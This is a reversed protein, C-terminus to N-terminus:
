ADAGEHGAQQEIMQQLAKWGALEKETLSARGTTKMRHEVARLWRRKERPLNVKDNVVLGTVRQQQHRRVIRLKKKTHVTYGHRRCVRRVKQV